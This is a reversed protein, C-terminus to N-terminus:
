GRSGAARNVREGRMVIRDSECYLEDVRCNARADAVVEDVLRPAIEVDDVVSQLPVQWTTGVKAVLLITRFSVYRSDRYGNAWTRNAM